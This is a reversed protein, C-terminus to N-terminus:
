IWDCVNIKPLTVWSAAQGRIYPNYQFVPRHDSVDDFDFLQVDLLEM